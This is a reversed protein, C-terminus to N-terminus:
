WEGNQRLYFILTVLISDSLSVRMLRRDFCKLPQQAMFYTLLISDKNTNPQRAWYSHWQWSILIDLTRIGARNYSKERTFFNSQKYPSHKQTEIVKIWQGINDESVGSSKEGGTLPPGRITDAQRWFLKLSIYLYRIYHAHTYNYVQM